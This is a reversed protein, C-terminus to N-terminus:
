PWEALLIKDIKTWIPVRCPGSASGMIVWYHHWSIFFVLGFFTWLHSSIDLKLCLQDIKTFDSLFVLTKPCIQGLPSVQAPPQVGLKLSVTPPPPSSAVVPAGLRDCCRGARAYKQRKLIKPGHWYVILFDMCLLHNNILIYTSDDLFRLQSM